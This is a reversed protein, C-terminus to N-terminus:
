DAAAWRARGEKGVRREESRAQQRPDSMELNDIKNLSRGIGPRDFALVTGHPSLTEGLALMMDQANASSGHILVFVPQKKSKKNPTDWDRRLYHLTANDTEIFQGQPPLNSLLQSRVRIDHLWLGIGLVFIIAFVSVLVKVILGSM